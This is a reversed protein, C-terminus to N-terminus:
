ILYGVAHFHSYFYRHFEVCRFPADESTKLHYFEHEGLHKKKTLIEVVESGTLPKPKLKCKRRTKTKDRTAAPKEHDVSSFCFLFVVM